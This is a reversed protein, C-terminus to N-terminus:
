NFQLKKNVDTAIVAPLRLPCSPAILINPMRPLEKNYNLVIEDLVVLDFEYAFSGWCWYSKESCAAEDQTVEWWM